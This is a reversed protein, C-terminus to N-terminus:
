NKFFYPIVLFLLNPFLDTWTIEFSNASIITSELFWDLVLTLFLLGLM